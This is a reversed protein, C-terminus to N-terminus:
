AFNLSLGFDIVKVHGEVDVMINALTIDNHMVEKEHFSILAEALSKIVLIRHIRTNTLTDNTYSSIYEM